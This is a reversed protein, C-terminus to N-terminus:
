GILADGKISSFLFSFVGAALRRALLVVVFLFFFVVYSFEHKKIDHVRTLHRTTNKIQLYWFWEIDILAKAIYKVM